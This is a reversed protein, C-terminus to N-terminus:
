NQLCEELSPCHERDSYVKGTAEGLLNLIITLSSFYVQRQGPSWIHPSNLFYHILFPLQLNSWFYQSIQTLRWKQTHVDAERGEGVFWM